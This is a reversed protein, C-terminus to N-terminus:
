KNYWRVDTANPPVMGREWSRTSGPNIVGARIHTTGQVMNLVIAAKPWWRGGKKFLYHSLILVGADLGANAAIIAGTDHAGFVRAWGIEEFAEPPAHTGTYFTNNLRYDVYRPHNIAQRTTVMDWTLGGVLTLQSTQYIRKEFKSPPKPCRKPIVIPSALLNEEVPQKMDVQAFLSPKVSLVAIAMVAIAILNQQM